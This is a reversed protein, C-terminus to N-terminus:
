IAETPVAQPLQSCMELASRAIDTYTRSLQKLQGKGSKMEGGKIPQTKSMCSEVLPRYCSSDPNLPSDILKSIRDAVGLQHPLRNQALQQAKHVLADRHEKSSLTAASLFVEIVRLIQIGEQIRDLFSGQLADLVFPLM